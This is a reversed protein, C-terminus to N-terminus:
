AIFFTNYLYLISVCFIISKSVSCFYFLHHNDITPNRFCQVWIGLMCSDQELHPIPNLTLGCWSWKPLHIGCSGDERGSTQYQLLWSTMPPMQILWGNLVCVYVYVCCVWSHISFYMYVHQICLWKLWTQSHPGTSPLGGPEETWPIKWALISSHTAMEEELSRGVWPDFRCRKRRRCQCALEKSNAGGPFDVYM